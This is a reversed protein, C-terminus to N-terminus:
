ASLGNVFKLNFIQWKSKIKALKEEDNAYDVLAKFVQPHMKGQKMDNHLIALAQNKSMETKYSRKERLASYVDAASLIQLNIDAIFNDTVAPYGTKCANQHHNKILHLTEEDLDTSKLMEYGLESHRQMIEREEPTLKGQKNLIKEPILVKGYDHLVSAKQLAQFDVESRFESPLKNAIGVATNKTKPLHNKVLDHLVNMNIKLPIKLENLIRTIESNVKVMEAVSNSNIYKYLDTNVSVTDPKAELTVQPMTKKQSALYKQLTDIVFNPQVGNNPLQNPKIELGM